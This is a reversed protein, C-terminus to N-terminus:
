LQYVTHKRLVAKIKEKFQEKSFSEARAYLDERQYHFNVFNKLALVLCDATPSDFFVAVQNTLTELVGGAKYAIIPTGAALAELPVIGFDEVGPFVLAKARSLYHLVEERSLNGLFEINSHAREKLEGEMQGSGIIKLPMNLQNFADVALDIRKNPAFASLVLFYDEKQPPNQQITKFDELEVFPHIVDSERQYYQKIREQVFSSNAVMRDVRKNSYIDWLQLPKRILNAIMRQLLPTEPGFYTDFQDYIYRMPSHIYSLHFSRRPIRVGKIVCHSSSIVLDTDSPISLSYTALPFLPLLKRYYNAIGPFHNLFSTHITRSEITPSTTGPTHILTYIPAEPFMECLAELVREGGRYGVLWDHLLAVKM